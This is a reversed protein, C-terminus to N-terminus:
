DLTDLALPQRRKNSSTSSSSTTTPPATPRSSTPSYRPFTGEPAPPRPISSGLIPVGIDIVLAMYNHIDDAYDAYDVSFKLSLSFGKM